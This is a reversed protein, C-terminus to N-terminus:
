NILIHKYKKRMEEFINQNFINKEIKNNKIYLERLNNIPMKLLPDINSIINGSLDLKELNTFPINNLINIDSIENYSLNLYTLNAFLAESLVNIDKIQNDFLLLVTLDISPMRNLIDINNIQNKGLNLMRLKKYINSTLGSIDSIENHSLDLNTLNPLNMRNLASKEDTIQNDSVNLLSLNKFPVNKFIELDSILNTSLNLKELSKFPVKSLIDLNSIKNNALSLSSLSKFSAKKLSDLNSINNRNLNLSLLNKFSNKAFIELNEIGNNSLDLETLTEFSPKNLAEIENLNCSFLILKYINKNRLKKILDGLLIESFLTKPTNTIKNEQTASDVINNDELDEEDIFVEMKKLRNRGAIPFEEVNQNISFRNVEVSNEASNLSYFINFKKKKKRSEKKKIESSKDEEELDENNINSNHSKKASSSNTNIINNNQNDDIIESEESDSDEDLDKNKWFEHSFYEEWDIRQRPNIQLLKSILDDLLDNKGRKKLPKQSMIQNYIAVQTKGKYPFEGFFLRYLIIGVSWLDIKNNYKEGSLLEPASYYTESHMLGLKENFLIKKGYNSIKPIISDDERYKVLINKLNLDGHIIDNNYMERLGINLKNFIERIEKITLAGGLNIVHKELNTDWLETVINFCDQHELDDILHLSYEGDCNKLYEIEKRINKKAFELKDPGYVRELYKNMYVRIAVLNHTKKEKCKFLLSLSNDELKDLVEYNNKIRGKLVTEQNDLIGGM